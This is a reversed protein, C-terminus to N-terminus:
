RAVLRALRAGPHLRLQAAAAVVAAGTMDLAPEDTQWARVDDVYSSGHADLGTPTASCHVMGDQFGGLGGDFSDVGNPGNVVAGVDLPRRGDTSGSLNAVQHQMCRPFRTGVGVMAGVGWPDGGLLWDRQATAFPQFARSGTLQDYLGVTAILGFTHSNVDFDDYARGAAFPDAKAHRLGTRIQDRLARVLTTRRVELHRAPLVDIARALDADALASTDYLNVTDHEDHQLYSRAWHAGARVYRGAAAARGTDRLALAIEAAGLELDDRWSSEPYFAHPLATTLPRPPSATDAMSFVLRAQHLERAARRPHHRADLQAALAFSASVRGALNPSIPTGPAEALFVPRHSVYRDVDATDRDDAQPLRWGDHDGRFTGAANGSGVGVQLLLTRTRPNWMRQLWTLGHRAEATLARPARRGLMRASTLLLVDNYATSHTFKLYDGADFWGGAVDVPGGIRHLDADTILDSDPEMHPWAYIRARRDLLHAPRRHLPGRVQGAGDRQVQDFSVGDRLLTGYLLGAGLVRFPVSTTSAPGLVRLRYRGPATLASFDLRYVAPWSRNWRGIPRAPVRGRRVVRGAHGLVVFREGHVAASTMLRARKVEHPLYGLQDVRLVAVISRRAPQQPSGVPGASGASWGAAATVAPVVVAAAALCGASLVAGLRSGRM